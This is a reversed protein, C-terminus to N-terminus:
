RLLRLRDQTEILKWLYSPPLSMFNQQMKCEPSFDSTWLQALTVLTIRVHKLFFDLQSSSDLCCTSLFMSCTCLCINMIIKPLYINCLSPESMVPRGMGFSQLTNPCNHRHCCAWRWGRSCLQTLNM